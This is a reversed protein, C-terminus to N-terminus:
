EMGSECAVRLELTTACKVQAVGSARLERMTWALKATKVHPRWRSPEGDLVAITQRINSRVLEPYIVLAPTLVDEVGVPEYGKSWAINDLFAKMAPFSRRM